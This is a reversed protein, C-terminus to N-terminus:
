KLKPLHTYVFHVVNLCAVILDALWNSAPMVPINMVFIGELQWAQARAIQQAAEWDPAEIMEAYRGDKEFRTAVFKM